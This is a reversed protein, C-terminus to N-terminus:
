PKKLVQKQNAREIISAHEKEWFNAIQKEFVAHEENSHITNAM